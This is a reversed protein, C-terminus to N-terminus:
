PNIVSRVPAMGGGSSRHRHPLSSPSRMARRSGAEILPPPTDQAAHPPRILFVFLCREALRQVPQQAGTRHGQAAPRRGKANPFPHARDGAAHLDFERATWIERPARVAVTRRPLAEAVSALSTAGMPMLAQRMPATSFSAKDASAPM